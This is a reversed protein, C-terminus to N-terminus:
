QGFLGHSEACATNFRAEQLEASKVLPPDVKFIGHSEACERDWAPDSKPFVNSVPTAKVTTFLDTPASHEVILRDEDPTKYHSNDYNASEVDNYNIALFHEQGKNEIVPSQHGFPKIRNLSVNNLSTSTMEQATSPIKGIFQKVASAISFASAKLISMLSGNDAQENSSPQHQIPINLDSNLKM